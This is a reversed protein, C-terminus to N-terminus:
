EFWTVVTYRRGKTVPLVEHWMDSRFCVLLGASIPVPMGVDKWLPGDVLGYLVLDGGEFGSSDNLFLVASVRRARSSASESSTAHGDMHRVFFDGEEYVLFQPGQHGQLSLDFHSSVQAQVGRFAAELRSVVDRGPNVEKTKRVAENLRCKSQGALTAKQSDAASLLACLEQCTPGDLFNQVALVGLKCFLALPPRIETM